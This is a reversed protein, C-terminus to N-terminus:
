GGSMPPLFAIEDGASLPVVDHVLMHNVAIRVGPGNLEPWREGVFLRLADSDTVGAPIEIDSLVLHSLRGFSLLRM